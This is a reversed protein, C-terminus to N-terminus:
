RGIAILPSLRSTHNFATAISCSLSVGIAINRAVPRSDYGKGIAISSWQPLNLSPEQVTM